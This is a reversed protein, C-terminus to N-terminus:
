TFVMFIGWWITNPVGGGIKYMTTLRKCPRISVGLSFITLARWMVRTINSVEEMPFNICWQIVKTQLQDNCM